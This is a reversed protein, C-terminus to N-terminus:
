AAELQWRNLDDDYYEEHMNSDDLVDPDYGALYKTAMGHNSYTRRSGNPFQIVVRTRAKFDRGVFRKTGRKSNYVAIRGTKKDYRAVEFVDRKEVIAYGNSYEVGKLKKATGRPVKVVSAQQTYVTEFKKVLGQAYRTLPKRLDIGTLGRAKAARLVAREHETAKRRGPSKTKSQKAAM